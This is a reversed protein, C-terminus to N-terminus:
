RKSLYEALRTAAKARHSIANKEDRTLKSITRTDGEPIIIREYPMVDKEIDEVHDIVTGDLRGEFILPEKGPECYGICSMFYAARQRGKKGELLKLLGEYGLGNFAFKPASGPFSPYATFFIGTDEVMVPRKLEEALLKAAKRAIDQITDDHSEEYQRDLQEVKIRYPALVKSVEEVKHRNTTVFTITKM